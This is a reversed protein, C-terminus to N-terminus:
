KGMRFCSQIDGREIDIKLRDKLFMLMIDPKSKNEEEKLGAVRLTRNRTIQELSDVKVTLDVNQTRLERLGKGIIEM